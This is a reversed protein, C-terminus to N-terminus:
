SVRLNAFPIAVGSVIISAFQVFDLLATHSDISADQFKTVAPALAVCVPVSMGVRLVIM